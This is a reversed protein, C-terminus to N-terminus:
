TSRLVDIFARYAKNSCRSCLEIQINRGSIGEGEKNTYETEKYIHYPVGIKTIKGEAECSDCFTKIM